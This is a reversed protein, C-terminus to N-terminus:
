LRMHEAFSSMEPASFYRAFTSNPREGDLKHRQAEDFVHDTPNYRRHDWQGVFGTYPLPSGYGWRWSPRLARDKHKRPGRKVTVRPGRFDTPLRGRRDECQASLISVSHCCPLPVGAAPVDCGAGMGCGLQNLAAALPGQVSM